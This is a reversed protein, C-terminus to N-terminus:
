VHDQGNTDQAWCYARLEGDGVRPGWPVHMGAHGRAALCVFMDEEDGPDRAFCIPEGETALPALPEPNQPM